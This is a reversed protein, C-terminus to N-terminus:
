ASSTCGSDGGEPREPAAAAPGPSGGPGQCAPAPAGARAAGLAERVARAIAEAVRPLSAEVAPTPRESFTKVDAAEVGLVRVTEPLPLGLRRGLKWATSLDVQHSLGTTGLHTTDELFAPDLELVEGPSAKGTVVADVLVAARYGSLLDLLDLGGVAAEVFAVPEGALAERALRLALLGVADDSLIPNGLGVVIVADTDPGGGSRLRGQAVWGAVGGRGYRSNPPRARDPDPAARRPRGRVARNM